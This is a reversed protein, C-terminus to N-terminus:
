KSDDIRVIDTICKRLYQFQATVFLDFMTRHHHHHHHHHHYHHNYHHNYHYHYEFMAYKSTGWLGPDPNTGYMSQIGAFASTALAPNDKYIKGQWIQMGLLAFLYFAVLIALGHQLLTPILRGLTSYFSRITPSARGLLMFRFLRLSRM